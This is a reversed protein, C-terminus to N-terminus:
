GAMTAYAIEDRRLLYEATLIALKHRCLEKQSRLLAKAMPSSLRLQKQIWDFQEKELSYIATITELTFEDFCYADLALLENLALSLAQYIGELESYLIDQMIEGNFLRQASRYQREVEAARKGLRTIHDEITIKRNGM